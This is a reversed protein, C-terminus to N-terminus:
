TGQLVIGIEGATFVKLGGVREGSFKRNQSTGDSM